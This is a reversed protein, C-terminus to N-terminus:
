IKVFFEIYYCYYAILMWLGTGVLNASLFILHTDTQHPWSFPFYDQFVEHSVYVLISNMGPYKFPAGNWLKLVDILTYFMALLLFGSGAMALTYSLSWLNKNIPILGNERQGECLLASLVGLLVGWMIFRIVIGIHRGKFFVLVRGAQVGLLCIVISNLSSLLGEPDFSHHLQYMHKATPHQYIHNEGFFWRDIIGAAGGTCNEYAGWESIGGPGLYGQPCSSDTLLFTLTLSLLELLLILTWQVWSNAMDAIPEWCSFKVKRKQLSYVATSLLETMAVVFYSIAFRQLVGPIRWTALQFDSTNSNLLLGLGFLIITRRVIQYLRKWVSDQSRGSFSFVLSVGMIWVFWPFVLDAVTLGDWVSHNFFWYGGGGYNVFIMIALSFGRFADLSMLRVKKKPKPDSERDAGDRTGDNILPKTEAETAGYNSSPTSKSPTGLDRAAARDIARFHCYKLIGKKIALRYGFTLCVWGVSLFLIVVAAYLIPLYENQGPDIIIISNCEKVSNASCTFKDRQVKLLYHGHEAYTYPSKIYCYGDGNTCNLYVSSPHATQITFSRNNNPYITNTADDDSSNLRTVSCNYCIDFKIGVILNESYDNYVTLLAQGTKLTVNGSVAKSFLILVIALVSHRSFLVFRQKFAAM